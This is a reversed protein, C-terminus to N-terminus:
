NSNDGSDPRQSLNDGSLLRLVDSLAACYGLHWYAREPANANLHRQDAFAYPAVDALERKIADHRGRIQEAVSHSLSM